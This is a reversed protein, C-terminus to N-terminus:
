RQASARKLEAIDLKTMKLLAQMVRDAKGGRLLKELVAPVIQWSVGFRDTLWGCQGKEGGESLKEWLRDIETQTRCNVVFSIAPTFEFVPGGNLATFKQGQVTFPVTMVSGAPRGSAAASEASYRVIKGLKANGFVSVYFKAAQGANDDFWLFPTIKNM